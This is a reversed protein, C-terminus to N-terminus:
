RLNFLHHTKELAGFKSSFVKSLFKWRIFFHEICFKHVFSFSFCYTYHKFVTRLVIIFFIFQLATTTKEDKTDEFSNEASKQLQKLNIDLM